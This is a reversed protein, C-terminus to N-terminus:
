RLDRACRFGVTVSRQQRDLASGRAAARSEAANVAQEVEDTEEETGTLFNSGRASATESDLIYEIPDLGSASEESYRIQNYVDVVYESVGGSLDMQGWRSPGGDHMLVSFPIEQYNPGPGTAPYVPVGHSTNTGTVASSGWPYLREESGGAAVYEWEAETPLRGGDWICFAFAEYWTVCNLPDELDGGPGDDGLVGFTAYKSECELETAIDNATDLEFLDTWRPLWGTEPHTPHGGDQPAPRWGLAYAELFRGFRGVTVEYKDLYFSSVTVEHAELEDAGCSLGAPCVDPVGSDTSRGMMFTGGEVLLTECIDEAYGDCSPPGENCLYVTSEADVEDDDLSGNGNLDLGGEIRKGGLLCATGRPEEVIRVVTAPSPGGAAGAVVASEDSGAGGGEGATGAAGSQGGTEAADGAEVGAANGGAEGTGASGGQPVSGGAGAAEGGAGAVPNVASTGDEGDAGNEGDLGDEGDAGNEGDEGDAGDKGPQGSCVYAPEGAEADDLEGDNDKDIGSRVSLGGESCHDGAPEEATVVLSQLGENGQEGPAGVCGAFAVALLAVSRGGAGHPARRAGVLRRLDRSSRKSLYLNM